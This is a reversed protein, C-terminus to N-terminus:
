QVEDDTLIKRISGLRAELHELVRFNDVIREQTEEVQAQLEQARKRESQCWVVMNSRRLM